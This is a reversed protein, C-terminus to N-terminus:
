ESQLLPTRSGNMKHQGKIPLHKLHQACFHCFHVIGLVYRRSQGTKPAGAPANLMRSRGEAQSNRLPSLSLINLEPDIRKEGIM